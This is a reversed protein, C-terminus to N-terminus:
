GMHSLQIAADLKRRASKSLAPNQKLYQQVTLVDFRVPNEGPSIRSIEVEVVKEGDVLLTFIDEGQEPIWGVIFVNDTLDPFKDRLTSLLEASKIGGLLKEKSQLLEAKLSSSM